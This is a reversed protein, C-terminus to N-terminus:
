FTQLERASDFQCQENVRVTLEGSAALEEYAQRVMHDDVSPLAKFDDSQVSTVGFGNVAHAAALLMRKVDTLTHRPMNDFVFNMANERFIGLFRGCADVDVLGARIMEQVGANGCADPGQLAGNGCADPEQPSVNGHVDPQAAANESPELGMRRLAASNVVCLHGCTRVAIVPHTSDVKDLDTRCPLRHEDQFYDQNFGRGCIWQGPQVPNEQAWQRFGETLHVISDTYQSLNACSMSYGYNLLHMHSDNFGACVFKGKLDIIEVDPEKYRGAGENDGVYIFRGGDTVFSEKIGDQTYVIGSKYIHM